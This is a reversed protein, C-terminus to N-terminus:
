MNQDLARGEGVRHTCIGGEGGELQYPLHSNGIANTFLHFIHWLRVDQDANVLSLKCRLSPYNLLFNGYKGGDVVVEYKAYEPTLFLIFANDKELCM